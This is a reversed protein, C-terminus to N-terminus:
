INNLEGGIKYYLLLNAIEIMRDAIKEIKRCTKIIKYVKKYDTINSLIKEELLSFLDDSKHEDILVKNFIDQLKEKEDISFMENVNQISEIMAKYLPLLYEKIIEEDLEDCISLFGKIFSKTNSSARLLENTIKLYSVLRRLDRAEPSFLALFKIVDNDIENAIVNADKLMDRAQEFKEKDCKDIAELVIENAKTIDNSFSKIKNRILDLRERYKTLM